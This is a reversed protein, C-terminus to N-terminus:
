GHLCWWEFAVLGPLPTLLLAAVFGRSRMLRALLSRLKTREANV